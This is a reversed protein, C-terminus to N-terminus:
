HHDFTKTSTKRIGFPSTVVDAMDDSLNSIPWVVALAPSASVALIVILRLVGSLTISNITRM